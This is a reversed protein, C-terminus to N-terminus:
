PRHLTMSLVNGREQMKRSWGMEWLTVCHRQNPGNWMNFWQWSSVGQNESIPSLLCLNVFAFEMGHPWSGRPINARTQSPRRDHVPSIYVHICKTSKIYFCCHKAAMSGRWRCNQPLGRQVGRIAVWCWLTLCPRSIKCVATHGQRPKEKWHRTRRRCGFHTELLFDWANRQIAFNEFQLPFLPITNKYM